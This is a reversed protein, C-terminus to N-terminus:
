VSLCCLTPDKNGAYASSCSLSFDLWCATAQQFPIFDKVKQGCLNCALLFHKSDETIEHCQLAVMLPFRDAKQSLWQALCHSCCIFSSSAWGSLGLPLSCLKTVPSQGWRHPFPFALWPPFCLLFRLFRPNLTRKCCTHMAKSKRSFSQQQPWTRIKYNVSSANAAWNKCYKCLCFDWHEFPIKGHTPIPEEPNSKVPHPSPTQVIAM